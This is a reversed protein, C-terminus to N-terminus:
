QSVVGSLQFLPMYLALLLSAIVLGMVVLLAPEILTVFRTLDTEIEEDYFDALSNLMEALAGTSEGVEAMKIAVPPFIHQAALSAAFAEGERVRHAVVDFAAAMYRNAVSRATIEIGNVLPIGGALLTALTRSMQATVFKRVTTGVAPIRLVWRDIRERERPKQVWGYVAAVLAAAGLVIWLLNNRAFTSLGVIANTLPPLEKGFSAYFDAFEPVVKLMIISVVVLSLCVLVAPYVLAAITRRKVSGIIKMYAVFRRLVIELSGSKEGAMLSATYVGPFLDGHAAFADSLAAGARVKEHVDDLVSKFLPNSLRDRLIDLSQVLPMGAKLLTALEQNFVLFERSPLRRRRPMAFAFSGIGRRPRLSLICMGKHELEHRLHAESEAVHMSEIVDGEPTGLRCRFEM